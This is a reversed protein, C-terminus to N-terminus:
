QARIDFIKGGSDICIGTESYGRQIECRLGSGDSCSLLARFTMPKRASCISVADAHRAFIM